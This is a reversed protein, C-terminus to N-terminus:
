PVNDANRREAHGCNSSPTAPDLRCWEYKATPRRKPEHRHSLGQDIAGAGEHMNTRDQQVDPRQERNRERQQRCPNGSPIADVASPQDNGCACNCNRRNRQPRYRIRVPHRAKPRHDIASRLCGRRCAGACPREGLALRACHESVGTPKGGAIDFHKTREWVSQRM